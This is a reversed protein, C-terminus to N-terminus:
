PNNGKKEHEKRAQDELAAVGMEIACVIRYTAFDLDTVKGGWAPKNYRFWGDPLSELIAIAEKATMNERLEEFDSEEYETVMYKKM